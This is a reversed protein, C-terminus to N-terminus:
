ESDDGAVRPDTTPLELEPCEVRLRQVILARPHSQALRTARIQAAEVRGLECLALTWLGEREAALTGNPFRRAHEKLISLAEAGSERKAARLLALEEGLTPQSVSRSDQESRVEVAFPQEAGGRLEDTEGETEGETSLERPM